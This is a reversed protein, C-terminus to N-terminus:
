PNGPSAPPMATASRIVSGFLSLSIPPMWWNNTVREVGVLYYYRVICFLATVSALIIMSAPLSINRWRPNRLVMFLFVPIPVFIGVLHSLVAVSLSVGLGFYYLKRGPQALIRTAFYFALATALLLLAYPRIEQSYRLALPFTALVLAALLAASRSYQKMLYIVCLIAALSYLVSLLRLMAENTGLMTWFRLIVYYLPPQDDWRMSRLMGRLTQPAIAKMSYTEDMWLGKNLGLLRLCLAAALVAIGAYTWRRGDGREM